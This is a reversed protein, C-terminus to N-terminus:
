RLPPLLRYWWGRGLYSFKRREVIGRQFLSFCADNLRKYRQHSADILAAAEPDVRWLEGAPISGAWSHWDELLSSTGLEGLAELESKSYDNM